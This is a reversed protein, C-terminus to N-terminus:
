RSFSEISRNRRLSFSCRPLVIGIPPSRAIDPTELWLRSRFFLRVALNTESTGGCQLSNYNRYFQETLFFRWESVSRRNRRACGRRLAAERRSVVHGRGANRGFFRGATPDPGGAGCFRRILRVTVVCPAFFYGVTPHSSRNRLPPVDGIARKKLGGCGVAITVSSAALLNVGCFM